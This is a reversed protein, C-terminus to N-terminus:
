FRYSINVAFHGDPRVVDSSYSAQPFYRIGVSAIAAVSFNKVPTFIVGNDIFFKTYLGEITVQEDSYYDGYDDYYYIWDTERAM